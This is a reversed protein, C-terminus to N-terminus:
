FTGTVTLGSLGVGFFSPLGTAGQPIPMFPGYSGFLPYVGKPVATSDYGETLRGGSQDILIWLHRQIYDHILTDRIARPDVPTPTNQVVASVRYYGPRGFTVTATVDPSRGGATLSGTWASLGKPLPAPANSPGPDDNTLLLTLQAAAAALNGV